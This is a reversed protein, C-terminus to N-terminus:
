RTPGASDQLTNNYRLHICHSDKFVAAIINARPDGAHALPMALVGSLVSAGVFTTAFALTASARTTTMPIDGQFDSSLAPAFNLACLGEPSDPTESCKPRGPPATFVSTLGSGLRLRTVAPKM